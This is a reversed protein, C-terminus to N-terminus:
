NRRSQRFYSRSSSSRYTHSQADDCRGIFGRRPIETKVNTVWPAGRARRGQAGSHLAKPTFGTTLEGGDQLRDTMAGPPTSGTALKEGGSPM